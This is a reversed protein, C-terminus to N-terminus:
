APGTSDTGRKERRPGTSDTGGTDKKDPVKTPEQRESKKDVYRGTHSDRRVWKDNDTKKVTM